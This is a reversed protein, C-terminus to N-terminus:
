ADTRKLLLDQRVDVLLDQGGRPQRQRNLEQGRLQLM